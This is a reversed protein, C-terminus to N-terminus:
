NGTPREIHDIVLVEVPGKTPILRLGLQERVATFIDPYENGSEAPMEAADHAGRSSWRLVFNYRGNLGTQDVVTRDVGSLFPAQSFDHLSSAKATIVSGQSDSRYSLQSTEDAAAETVRPGSKDPVLAYIPLERREIHAKLGLRSQLLAQQMLAIQRRQNEPSMTQMSAFTADDIKAHIEYRDDENRIWDPGGVIRREASVPLGYASQILLIAQGIFAPRNTSVSRIPGSPAVKVLNPPPQVAPSWPKITAVEFSPLPGQAHLMQGYFPTARAAGYFVPLAIISLAAVQLLAKAASNLPTGRFSMIARIRGNLEAGSLGAIYPQPYELCFRCAQLISDAYVGADTGAEVVAEDCAREREHILRQQIWWVVPHFWFVTAVFLHLAMALNDRRSVHLMEHRLIAEMEGESLNSSLEAPWILVPKLVGVIGPEISENTLLVPVTKGKNVRRLMM